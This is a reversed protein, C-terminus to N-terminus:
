NFAFRNYKPLWDLYGVIEAVVTLYKLYIFVLWDFSAYWQLMHM